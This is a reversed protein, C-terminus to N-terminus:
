LSMSDSSPEGLMFIVDSPPVSIVKTSLHPASSCIPVWCPGAHHQTNLGCLFVAVHHPAQYRKLVLLSPQRLLRSTCACQGVPVEEALLKIPQELYRDLRGAVQHACVHALTVGVRFPPGSAQYNLGGGM